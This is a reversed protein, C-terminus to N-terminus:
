QDRNEEREEYSAEEFAAEIVDALESRRFYHGKGMPLLVDIYTEFSNFNLTILGERKLSGLLTGVRQAQRHVRTSLIRQPRRRAVNQLLRKFAGMQEVKPRAVIPLLDVLAIESRCNRWAQLFSKDGKRMIVLMRETTITSLGVMRALEEATKYTARDSFWLYLNHLQWATDAGRLNNRATNERINAAIAQGGNLNEVIVKVTPKSNKRQAAIRLLAECRSFGSVLWFFKKVHTGSYSTEELDTLPRVKVPTDQVIPGREGEPQMTAMLEVIDEEWAGSRANWAREICISAIPVEIVADIVRAQLGGSSSTVSNGIPSQNSMLCMM